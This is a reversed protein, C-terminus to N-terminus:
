ALVCIRCHEWMGDYNEINIKIFIYNKPLQTNLVQKSLLSGRVYYPNYIYISRRKTRKRNTKKSGSSNPMSRHSYYSTNMGHYNPPTCEFYRSQAYTVCHYSCGRSPSEHIDNQKTEEPYHLWRCHHSQYGHHKSMTNSLTNLSTSTAIDSQIKLNGVHGSHSSACSWHTTSHRTPCFHGLHCTSEDHM